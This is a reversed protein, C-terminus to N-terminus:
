VSFIVNSFLSCTLLDVWVTVRAALSQLIELTLYLSLYLLNLQHDETKLGTNEEKKM